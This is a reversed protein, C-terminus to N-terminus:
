LYDFRGSIIKIYPRIKLEQALELLEKSLKLPSVLLSKQILTFGNRILYRRFINRERKQSEPIDFAILTSFGDARPIKIAPKYLLKKGLPTIVYIEQNDKNKKKQILGRDNLRNLSQYFTVQKGRFSGRYAKYKPM